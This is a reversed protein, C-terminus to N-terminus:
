KMFRRRLSLAAFGIGILALSAPEPASTAPPVFRNDIIFSTTSNATAGDPLNFVLGTPPLGFTSAWDIDGATAVLIEDISFGFSVPVGLPVTVANSEAVGLVDLFGGNAIPVLRGCGPDTPSSCVAGQGLEPVNLQYSLVNTRDLFANVGIEGNNMSGHLFVNMSVSISTANADSSSFVVADSYAANTNDTGGLVGGTVHAGVGVSGTSANAVAQSGTCAISVTTPSPGNAVSTGEVSCPPPGSTGIGATYLPNASAPMAFWALTTAILLLKTFVRIQM